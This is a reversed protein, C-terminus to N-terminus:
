EEVDELPWFPAPDTERLRYACGYGTGVQHSIWGPCWQVQM